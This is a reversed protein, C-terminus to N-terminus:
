KIERPKHLAAARRSATIVSLYDMTFLSSM